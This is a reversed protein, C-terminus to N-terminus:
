EQNKPRKFTANKMENKVAYSSNADWVIETFKHFTKGWYTSMHSIQKKAVNKLPSILNGSLLYLLQCYM